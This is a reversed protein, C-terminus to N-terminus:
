NFPATLVAHTRQQVTIGTLFSHDPMNPFMKSMSM